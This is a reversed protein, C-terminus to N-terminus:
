AKQAFITLITTLQLRDLISLPLVLVARTIWSRYTKMLLRRLRPYKHEWDQSWFSLCLELVSYSTSLCREDVINFGLKTLIQYLVPRPFIYLHRPLDWGAWYKGFIKSELSEYSPISFILWGGSRLLSYAYKLDEIPQELHELVSWLVIADFSKPELKVNSFRDNYIEIGNRKQCFEAAIRNPEIGVVEWHKSRIMEQLFAGTGCGVELMRGSPIMREVSRRRKWDGYRRLLYKWSKIDASSPYEYSGYDEPYYLQLSEWALRPNQRFMGCELCRVERFLGPLGEWRDPGEFLLESSNSGCWCCAIDEWQLRDQELLQDRKM